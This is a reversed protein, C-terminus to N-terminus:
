ISELLQRQVENEFRFYTRIIKKMTNKDLTGLSGVIQDECLTHEKSCSVWCQKNLFDNKVSDIGCTYMQEDVINTTIKAVKYNKRHSTLPDLSEAYLVVFFNKVIKSNSESEPLKYDYGMNLNQAYIVDGVTYNSKKVFEM